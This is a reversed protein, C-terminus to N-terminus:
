YRKVSQIKRIQEMGTICKENGWMGCLSEAKRVGNLYAPRQFAEVASEKPHKEMEAYRRVKDRDVDKKRQGKKIGHQM